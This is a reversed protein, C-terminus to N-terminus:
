QSLKKKEGTKTRIVTKAGKATKTAAPKTKTFLARTHVSRRGAAPAASPAIRPAVALM